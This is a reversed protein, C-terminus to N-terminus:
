EIEGLEILRQYMPQLQQEFKKWQDIRSNNIPSRVQTASTTRVARPNNYFHLCSEEWPLDLFALLAKVTSEYDNILTEYELFFVKNPIVTQWYRYLEAAGHYTDALEEQDYTFRLGDAFYQRYCGWLNDMPNRRCFIIKAEPRALHILGLAKFNQLYKDTFYKTTHLESTLLQYKDGIAKWDAPNLDNAWLPFPKDIRKQQLVAYSARTLAVLEDGATVMSHSSIIQEVLTTGSRPLGCIFIPNSTEADRPLPAQQLVEASFHKPIERIQQMEEAHDYQLLTRKLKAGQEIHSFQKQTDGYFEYGRALAFHIRARNHASLSPKSLISEMKALEDADIDKLLDSRNWYAYGDLPSLRICRNFSELAEPMKGIEKLTVGQQNVANINAPALRLVKEISHLANDHQGLLRQATAQSLLAAIDRPKSSLYQNTAALLGAYDGAETLANFLLYWARTLQPIQELLQRSLIIVVPSKGDKALQAAFNLAQHAPMKNSGPRGPLSITVDKREHKDVPTKSPAKKSAM